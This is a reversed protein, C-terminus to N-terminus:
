ELIQLAKEIMLDKGTVVKTVISDPIIGNYVIEDDMTYQISTPMYYLWGNPLERASPVGGPHGGTRDGVVTVQPLIRLMLVFDEGSSGVSRDSLLVIKMQPNANKAPEVYNYVPDSFDDHKIGNRYKDYKYDRKKDYFRSAIYAANAENGGGNNRVDIVIGKCNSFEKLINDLYGYGNENVFTSIHFYGIDNTLKGYTYMNQEKQDMLYKGIVTYNYYFKFNYNYYIYVKKGNNLWAHSDKLEALMKSLAGVLEDDSMTDSIISDYIHYISDWNVNKIIFAPYHLDYNTWLAKFVSKPNDGPQEMFLKECSTSALFILIFFFLNRIM